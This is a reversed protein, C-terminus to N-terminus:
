CQLVDGGAQGNMAKLDTSARERPKSRGGRDAGTGSNVEQVERPGRASGERASRRWSRGACQGRVSSLNKTERETEGQRRHAQVVEEERVQPQLMEAKDKLEGDVNSRYAAKEPGKLLLTLNETQCERLVHVEVAIGWCKIPTQWSQTPKM